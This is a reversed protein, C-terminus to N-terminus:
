EFVGGTPPPPATVVQRIEDLKQIVANVKLKAFDDADTYDELMTALFQTMLNARQICAEGNKWFCTMAYSIAQRSMDVELSATREGVPVGRYIQGRAATIGTQLLDNTNSSIQDKSQQLALLDVEIQQQGQTTM